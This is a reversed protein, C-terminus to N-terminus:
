DFHVFVERAEAFERMITERNEPARLRIACGYGKPCHLFGKSAGSHASIDSDGGPPEVFEFAWLLKAVGIILNREALHISPCIRRGAGYGLHDRRESAAYTSALAPFDAFREPQFHEPEQWRESDHHMGCVNLVISSGQPILKGDIHDDQHITVWKGKRPNTKSKESASADSAVYLGKAVAHPVGM